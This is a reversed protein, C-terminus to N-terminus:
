ITQVDDAVCRKSWALTQCLYIMRIRKLMGFMDDDDDDDDDGDDDDDDTYDGSDDDSPM